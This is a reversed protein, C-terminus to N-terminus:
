KIGIQFDYEYHCLQDVNSFCVAMHCLQRLNCVNDGITLQKNHLKLLRQLTPFGSNLNDFPVSVSYLASDSKVRRAKSLLLLHCSVFPYINLIHEDFLETQHLFAIISEPDPPGLKPRAWNMTNFEQSFSLFLISHSVSSIQFFSSSLSRKCASTSLAYFRCQRSSFGRAICRYTTLPLCSIQFLYSPKKLWTAM